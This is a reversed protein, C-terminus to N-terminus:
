QSGRTQVPQAQQEFADVDARGDYPRLLRRPLLVRQRSRAGAVAESLQLVRTAVAAAQDIEGAYVHAGALWSLYLALERAHAADYDALVPASLQVARRPRRLETLCRGAMIDLEDRTSWYARSPGGDTEARGSFAEAYAAERVAGLTSRLEASVLDHLGGGAVVDDM